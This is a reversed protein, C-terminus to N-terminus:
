DVPKWIMVGIAAVLPVTAMIGWFIWVRADRWYTSPIAGTERFKLAQRGQRIQVPVLVGLWIGGSLVFLLQTWILWSSAVPHTGSLYLMGYGGAVILVIGGLTFVWDTVTVMRQAFSILKPDRTRDAFVKWFATITVNGVLIVM